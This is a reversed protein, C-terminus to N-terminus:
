EALTFYFTAGGDVAADFWVRGGHRRIIRQVTALGVGMGEFESEKHMRQFAGFLRDAYRMDFGAGNDRVYYVASGGELQRGFEIAAPERGETYKWANGLLNDVAIRLMASDARVLFGDAVTIVASREPDAGQLAAASERALLSLDVSALSMNQRAVRSLGLLAEIQLELKKAARAICGLFDQGSDDLKDAYDELLAGSFGLLHRLPARLDHSISFSLEELEHNVMDFDNKQSALKDRLVSLELRDEARAQSERTLEARAGALQLKGQALQLELAAALQCLEDHARRQESLESQLDPCAATEESVSEAGEGEDDGILVRPKKPDKEM